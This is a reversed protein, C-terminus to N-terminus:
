EYKISEIINLKSSKYAPAISALIMVVLGGIFYSIFMSLQYHMTIQAVIVKTLYPMNHILVLGGLLGLIGGALGGTFSEILVMNRIQSKSMGLSRYMGLSRRRDIFSIILNNIIGLLASIMALVSFSTLIGFIQANNAHNVQAEESSTIVYPNSDYFEERLSKAISDSDNGKVYISTYFNSQFLEQFDELSILSFDGNNSLSDFVGLVSFEKCRENHNFTITSGKKLNYIEAVKTTIIINGRQLNNLDDQEIELRWYDIFDPKIGHLLLLKSDHGEVQVFRESMIGTANEVGEMGKVKQLVEDDIRSAQMFTAYNGYKNYTLAVEQMVSYTVTNISLLIAIGVSLLTVSGIISKNNRINKCALIGVNGFIFQYIREFVLTLLTTAYPALLVIAVITFLLASITVILLTNINAFPPAIVAFAIFLLGVIIKYSKKSKPKDMTNLIIQKISYKTSSVIPVIGSFLTILFAMLFSLAINMTSYMKPIEEQYGGSSGLSTSILNLIFIGLFIGITGGIIAYVFTEFILVLGTSFKTAGISRFTGTIPLRDKMILKFSTFIIFSSIVLVLGLVINFPMKLSNVSYAIDDKPIAEGISLDPYQKKLQSVAGILDSTESKIYVTSIHKDTLGYAERITGPNVIFQLMEGDEMFPGVPEAIGAVYFAHNVGSIELDIISYLSLDHKDSFSKSIIIQNDNLPRHTGSNLIYPNLKQLDEYDMGILKIRSLEFEKGRHLSMSDVSSIAYDWTSDKLEIEEFFPTSSGEGSTVIIDSSGVYKTMSNLLMGEITSPLTTSAFFLSTSIIISILILLTRLKKEMINKLIFKFIIGM